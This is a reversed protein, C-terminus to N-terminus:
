DRRAAGDARSHTRLADVGAVYMDRRLTTVKALTLSRVGLTECIRTDPDPAHMAGYPSCPRVARATAPRLQERATAPRQHGAISPRGM